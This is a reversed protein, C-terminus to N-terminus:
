SYRRHTDDRFRTQALEPIEGTPLGRLSGKLSPVLVDAMGGNAPMRPGVDFNDEGSGAKDSITDDKVDTSVFKPEDSANEIGTLFDEDEECQSVFFVIAVLPFRRTATEGFRRLRISLSISGIADEELKVRRPFLRSM